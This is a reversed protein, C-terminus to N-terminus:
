ATATAVPRWRSTPPGVAARALRRAPRRHHRPQALDPRGHVPRGRHAARRHRLRRAGPQHVPRRAPPLRRRVRPVGADRRHDPRGGAGRRGGPRRPGRRHALRDELRRGRPPRAHAAPEGARQGHGRPRRPQAGAAGAAPGPRAAPQGPDAPRGAAAVAADADRLAAPRARRVGVRDDRGRPQLRAARQRARQRPLLQDRRRPPHGRAPLGAGRRGPPRPADAQGARGGVLLVSVGALLRVSGRSARPAPSM